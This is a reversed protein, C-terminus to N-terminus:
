VGIGEKEKAIQQRAVWAPAIALGFITVSQTLTFFLSDVGVLMDFYIGISILIFSSIINFQAIQTFLKINLIFGIAFYGLSILFLWSLMVLSYLQHMALVTSLLISFIAIMFFNQVIFAQRHTCDEIDYNRNVRKVMNHEILFGVLILFSVFSTGVLISSEYFTTMGFTLIVAIIAWVYCAHYNYPFFTERDILHRKIQSIQELVKEKESM